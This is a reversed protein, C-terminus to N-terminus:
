SCSLGALAPVAAANDLAIVSSAMSEVIRNLSQRSAAVVDPIYARGHAEVPTSFSLRCSLQRNPDPLNKASNSNVNVLVAPDLRKVIWAVVVNVRMPDALLSLKGDTAAKVVDFRSVDTAIRYAVQNGVMGSNYRDVTGLAQQLGSSIGDHLEAGLASSWRQNDLMTSKGASDQIVIQSRDLRDPVAVPLLEIAKIQSAPLAAVTPTITYYNPVPTSSCASLGAGAVVVVLLLGKKLFNIGQQSM